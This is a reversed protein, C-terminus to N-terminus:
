LWSACGGMVAVCCPAEMAAVFCVRGNCGCPVVGVMVAVLCVMGDCVMILCGLGKAGISCQWRNWVKKNACGRLALSLVMKLVVCGVGEM